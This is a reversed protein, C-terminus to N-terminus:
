ITKSFFSEMNSTMIGFKIKVNSETLTYGMTEADAITQSISLYKM